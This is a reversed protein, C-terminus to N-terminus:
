YPISGTQGRRTVSEVGPLIPVLSVDQRDSVLGQVDSSKTTFIVRGRGPGDREFVGHDGVWAM